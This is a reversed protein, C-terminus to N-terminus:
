KCFQIILGAAENSGYNKALKFDECAGERNNSNFKLVGRNFYALGQGPDINIASNYDSMAGENDKQKMKILGRNIYAMPFEPNLLIASNFDDMAPKMENANLWARGRDFFINADDPKLKLATNLDDIAEANENMVLKLKGRNYYAALLKNNLAIGNTFDKIAGLTDGLLQKAMGRDSYASAYDPEKEIVTNFDALAGRYDGLFGKILGRNNFAVTHDPYKQVQDNWLSLSDHWVKCRERTEVILLLSYILFLSIAVKRYVPKLNKFVVGFLFFFGISSVYAYRDAMVAKGVAILQIVLIINLVFFAYGFFYEKSFKLTYVIFATIGLALMLYFYFTLPLSNGAKIPYPYFIALHYPYVLKGLYHIFGYGAFAIRQLFPYSMENALALAQVRQAKLALFGFVLALLLYPIKDLIANKDRLKRGSYFDVIFLSFALSVAMGKSFLSLAFLALSAFYLFWNKKKLYQIYCILSILFFFAYLLDKRESVWAVSEVHMTHIGFLASVIAAMRFDGILLLILWCVLGTNLLHLFVNLRHYGRPDLKGLSYNFAFSLMTLPHYNGEFSNTLLKKVHDASLNRIAQNETVYKDDDWNTFKADLAPQYSFYTASLILILLFWRWYKSKTLASVPAKRQEDRKPSDPHRIQKKSM